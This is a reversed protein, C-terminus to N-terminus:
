RTVEGTSDPVLQYGDATRSYRLRLAFSMADLVDEIDPTGPNLYTAPRDDITTPDAHIRIGFRRELDRLVDALPRDHFVVGGTLWSATRDPDPADVLMTPGSGRVIRASDGARLVLPEHAAGSAAPSLPGPSTPATAFVVSGEVLAVETSPSADDRWARVNFRTGTVTITADFTAVVFPRTGKEVDFFAEGDLGVRRESRLTFSRYRLESGPSLTVQTGDPLRTAVTASPATVVHTRLWSWSTISLAFLLVALVAARRVPFSWDLRLTSPIWSVGSRGSAGAESTESSEAGVRRMVRDAFYPGFSEARSSALLRALPEDSDNPQFSDEPLMATTRSDEFTM